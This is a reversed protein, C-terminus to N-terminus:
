RHRTLPEIIRDRAQLFIRKALDVDDALLADTIAPYPQAVDKTVSVDVYSIVQRTYYSFHVKKMSRQLYGNGSLEILLIQYDCLAENIRYYDSSDVADEIKSRAQVLAQHVGANDIAGPFDDLAVFLLGVIVKLMEVIEVPGMQRVRAGRGPVLEIVGDGALIRLAERVPVRGLGLWACLDTEILRQGPVLRGNNLLEDIRDVAQMTLSIAPAEGPAEMMATPKSM